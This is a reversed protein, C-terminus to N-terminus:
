SLVIKVEAKKKQQTGFRMSGDTYKLATCKKHPSSKMLNKLETEEIVTKVTFQLSLSHLLKIMYSGFTRWLTFAQNFHAAAALLWNVLSHISVNALMNTGRLSSFTNTLTYRPM